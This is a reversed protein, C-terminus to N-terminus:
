PSTFPMTFCITSIRLPSEGTQQRFLASDAPLTLLCLTGPRRPDAQTGSNEQMYHRSATVADSCSASDQHRYHNLYRMTALYYHLLSSAYRLSERDTSRELTSFIEEFM